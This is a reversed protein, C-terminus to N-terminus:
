CSTGWPLAAYTDPELLAVPNAGRPGPGDGQQPERTLRPAPLRVGVPVKTRLRALGRVRTKVLTGESREAKLGPLIPSRCTV